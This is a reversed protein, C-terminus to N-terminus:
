MATHVKAVLSSKPPKAAQTEAVFYGWVQRAEYICTSGTARSAALTSNASRKSNTRQHPQMSPPTWCQMANPQTASEQEERHSTPCSVSCSCGSEWNAVVTGQTEGPPHHSKQDLAAIALPGLWPRKQGREFLTTRRPARNRRERM